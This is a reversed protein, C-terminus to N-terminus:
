SEYSDKKLTITEIRKFSVWKASDESGVPVDQWGCEINVCQRYVGKLSSPFRLEAGYGSCHPVKIV